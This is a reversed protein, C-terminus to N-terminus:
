GPLGACMWATAVCGFRGPRLELDNREYHGEVLQRLLANRRYINGSELNIVVRGYAEPNGIGYICSVSAV